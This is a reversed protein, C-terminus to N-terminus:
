QQANIHITLYVNECTHRKQRGLTAPSGKDVFTLGGAFLVKDFLLQQLLVTPLVIFM